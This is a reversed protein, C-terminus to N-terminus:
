SIGLYAARFQALMASVAQDLNPVHASVFAQLKEQDKSELIRLLEDRKAEPVHEIFVKNIALDLREQLDQKMRAGEQAQPDIGKEKVLGDLFGSLASLVDNQQNSNM